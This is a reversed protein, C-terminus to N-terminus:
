ESEYGTTNYNDGIWHLKAIWNKETEIKLNKIGQTLLKYSNEEKVLYHITKIDNKHAESLKEKRARIKEGFRNKPKELSYISQVLLVICVALLLYKM